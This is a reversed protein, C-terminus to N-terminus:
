IHGLDRHDKGGRTTIVGGPCSGTARVKGHWWSEPLKQKESLLHSLTKGLSLCSHEQSLCSLARYLGGRGQPLHPPPFSRSSVSGGMRAQWDRLAWPLM